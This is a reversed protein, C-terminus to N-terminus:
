FAVSLRVGPYINKFFDNFYLEPKIIFTDNIKKNVAVKFTNEKFFDNNRKVLYGFSFGYWKDLEPTNSFNHEWTLSLFHNLEYFKNENSESFDYMLNYDVAYMNKFMGKQSFSVGLRFHIDSVFTNKIWGSGIGGSLLLMDLNKSTNNQFYGKVEDSRLDLWANIGKKYKAGFKGNMFQEAHKIKTVFEDALLLELDALDDTFVNTEIDKFLFTICYRGFDKEFTTGDEFVVLTKRNRKSRELEVEKYNWVYLDDGMEKFSITVREDKAPQDISIENLIKQIQKIRDSNSDIQLGKQIADTTSVEVLMKDFKYRITDGKYYGAMASVSISFLLLLIFLFITKVTKM